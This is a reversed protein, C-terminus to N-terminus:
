DRTQQRRRRSTAHWGADISPISPVRAPLGSGHASPRGMVSAAEGVGLDDVDCGVKVAPRGTPPM